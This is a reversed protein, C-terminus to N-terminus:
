TDGDSAHSEWHNVEDGNGMQDKLVTQRCRIRHNPYLAFCETLEVFM